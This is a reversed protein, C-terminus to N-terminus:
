NKAINFLEATGNCVNVSEALFFRGPYLMGYTYVSRIKSLRGNM